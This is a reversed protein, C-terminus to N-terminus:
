VKAIRPAFQQSLRISSGCEGAAFPDVIAISFPNPLLTESATSHIGSAAKHAFTKSTIKLPRCYDNFTDVTTTTTTGTTGTMGSMTTTSKEAKRQEWCAKEPELASGEWCLCSLLIGWELKRPAAVPPAQSALKHCSLQFNWKTKAVSIRNGAGAAAVFTSSFKKSKKDVKRMKLQPWTSLAAEALSTATPPHPPAPSPLFATSCPKRSLINIEYGSDHGALQLKM